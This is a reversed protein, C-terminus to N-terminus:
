LRLPNSVSEKFGVEGFIPKQPDRIGKKESSRYQPEEITTTGPRPRILGLTLLTDSAGYRTVLTAKINVRPLLFRCKHGPSAEVGFLKQIKCNSGQFDM